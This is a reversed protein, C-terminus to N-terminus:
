RTRYADLVTVSVHHGGPTAAEASLSVTGGAPPNTVRIAGDRVPVERWTAGRDYSVRVTPATADGGTVAVPVSMRVGAPATSDPALAPTFRVVPFDVPAGPGEGDDPVHASDFTVAMRVETSVPAGDARRATTVLEYRAEEAPLGGFAVFDQLSADLTAVEEGDRYLTTTGETLSPGGVNGAGDAFLSVSGALEDGSRYLRYDGGPAAPGFVGTGLCVRYTRGPTYRRAPTEYSWAPLEDGEEGVPVPPGEQGISWDHGGTLFVRTTGPLDRPNLSYTGLGIVSLTGTRGPLPSGLTVDVRALEAPRVRHDQGTFFGGPSEWAAHYETRDGSTWSAGVYGTLQAATLRPGTALTRLGTTAPDRTLYGYGFRDDFLVTFNEVTQEAAADFVTPAVERTQRADLAVTTDEGVDLTHTYALVDTPDEGGQYVQAYVVSPGAPVRATATGDTGEELWTREGTAYSYVFAWWDDAPQGDLGTATVAVEHMERERHVTGAIRVRQGDAGTAPVVATFDGTADGGRRTDATLPVTATGGAPVTVTGAGLAFLGDPAATALDLTLTVDREGANRYTLERVVPEDDEHPWAATGFSLPAAAQDVTVTQAVARAADLRGTGTRFPGTEAVPQAAGVLAAKLQEGDWDPHRQALLAAAGAVHPTAMSTGSLAVYGDAVPEGEGALVSGEAAAAGIGAGPAVLDPKVARDGTRPGTASFEAWADADDVAGVALAADASAPSNVSSEMEWPVNGAAAVFLAGSEASLTGVAEEVLDTGPSDEAGLSLNVVRAGQAVAWEMGAVIGSDFGYGDDGLVKGNLLRAGPAVGTLAGDSAAGTGAAISAVHTGHGWHDATDPSESFNAEAVVRGALDPHRTDIGSDLVAITVGTGDYGADWAAPAGVQPVSVDLAGRRVGDLSVRAVGASLARAGDAAAPRTLGAWVGAAQEPTV